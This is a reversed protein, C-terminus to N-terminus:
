EPGFAGNERFHHLPGPVTWEPIGVRKMVKIPQELVCALLEFALAVSEHAIDTNLEFHGFFDHELQFLNSVASRM